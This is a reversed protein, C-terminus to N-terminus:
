LYYVWKINTKIRELSDANTVTMIRYDSAKEPELMWPIAEYYLGMIVTYDSRLLLELYSSEELHDNEILYDETQTLIDGISLSSGDTVILFDEGENLMEQLTLGKEDPNFILKM